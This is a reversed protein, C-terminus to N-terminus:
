FFAVGHRIRLPSFFGVAVAATSAAAAAATNSTGYFGGGGCFCPPLGELPGQLSRHAYAQGGGRGREYGAGVVDPLPQLGNRGVHQRM